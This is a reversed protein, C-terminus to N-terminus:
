QSTRLSLFGNVGMKVDRAYTTLRYPLGKHKTVRILQTNPQIQHNQVIHLYTSSSVDTTLTTTTDRVTSSSNQTKFTENTHAFTSMNRNPTTATFSRVISCEHLVTDASFLSGQLPEVTM